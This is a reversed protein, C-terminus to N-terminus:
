RKNPSRKALQVVEWQNSPYNSYTVFPNKVFSLRDEATMKRYYIVAKVDDIFFGIPGHSLGTKPGATHM